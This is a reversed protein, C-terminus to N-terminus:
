KCTFNAKKMIKIIKDYKYEKSLDFSAYEEMKDESVINISIGDSSSSLSIDDLIYKKNKNYSFDINIKNKSSSINYNLDKNKYNEKLASEVASIYNSNNSNFIIEKKNSLDIIRGNKLKILVSSSQKLGDKDVTKTCEIKKNKLLLACIVLIVILCIVALIIITKNNKKSKRNIKKTSTKRKQSIDKKGTKSKTM